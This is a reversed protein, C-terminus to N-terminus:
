ASDGTVMIDRSANVFSTQHLRTLFVPPMKLVTMDGATIVSAHSDTALLVTKVSVNSATTMTSAGQRRMVITKNVITPLTLVSM